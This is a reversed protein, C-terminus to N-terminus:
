CSPMCHFSVVGNYRQSRLGSCSLSRGIATPLWQKPQVAPEPDEQLPASTEHLGFRISALFASRPNRIASQSIWLRRLELRQYYTGGMADMLPTVAWAKDASRAEENEMTFSMGFDSLRRPSTRKLRGVSRRGNAVTRVESAAEVLCGMVIRKGWYNWDLVSFFPARARTAVATSFM